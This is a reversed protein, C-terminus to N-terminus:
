WLTPAGRCPRYKDPFSLWTKRGMIVPHGNTLRTFHKM